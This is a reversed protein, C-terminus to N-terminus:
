VGTLLIIMICMQTNNLAHTLIAALWNYRMGIYIFWSGGAFYIVGLGSIWFVFFDVGQESFLVIWHLSAFVFSSLIVGFVIFLILSQSRGFLSRWNIDENDPQRELRVKNLTFALLRQQAFALALRDEPTEQNEKYYEIVRNEAVINEGLEILQYSKTGEIEGNRDADRLKSKSYKIIYGAILGPFFILFLITEAPAVFIFQNAIFIFNPDINQISYASMLPQMYFLRTTLFLGVLGIATGELTKFLHADKYYVLNSLMMITLPIASMVTYISFYGLYQYDQAPDQGFSSKYSLFIIFASGVLFLIYFPIVYSFNPFFRVPKKEHTDESIKKIWYELDQAWKERFNVIVLIFLIIANFMPLADHITYIVDSYSMTTANYYMADFSFDESRYASPVPPLELGVLPTGALLASIGEYVTIPLNFLFLILTGYFDSVMETMGFFEFGAMKFVSLALLTAGIFVGLFSAGKTAQSIDGKVFAWIVGITILIPMGIFLFITVIDLMKSTGKLILSLNLPNNADFTMFSSSFMVYIFLFGLYLKINLHENDTSLIISIFLLSIIFSFFKVNPVFNFFVGPVAFFFGILALYVKRM